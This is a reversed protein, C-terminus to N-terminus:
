GIVQPFLFCITKGIRLNGEWTLKDLDIGENFSNRNQRKYGEVYRLDHLGNPHHEAGCFPWSDHMTWVIPKKIRGIEEISIMEGQIWHM